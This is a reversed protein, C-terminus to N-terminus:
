LKPLKSSVLFNVHMVTPVPPSNNFQEKFHANLKFRSDFSDKKHKRNFSTKFKGM